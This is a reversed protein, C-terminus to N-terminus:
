NFMKNLILKKEQINKEQANKLIIVKALIVIVEYVLM